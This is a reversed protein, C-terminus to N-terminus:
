AELENVDVRHREVEGKDKHMVICRMDRGARYGAGATWADKAALTRFQECLVGPYEEVKSSHFHGVYWYRFLTKGWWEPRDAAMIGQLKPFKVTDGHTCGLLCKGWKFYFFKAPSRDVVVRPDNRYYAEMALSLMMSTHDDHNGIENRITVRKHKKKAEDICTLLATMGITWVRNMRTDVDLAHGSRSTQNELSDSHFFDGLNMILAEESPPSVAVLRCMAETLQNTAIETDFDAGSEEAWSYMGIHPDGMPYISLLKKHDSKVRPAKVKKSKGAYEEFAERIAEEAKALKVKEAKAQIWQLKVEGTTGDILTTTQSLKLGPAVGTPSALHEPAHGVAAMKRKITRIVRRCNSDDRELFRAAATASGEQIYAEWIVRQLDTLGLDEVLNFQGM